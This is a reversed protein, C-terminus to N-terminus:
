TLYLIRIQVSSGILYSLLASPGKSCWQCTYGSTKWIHYKL